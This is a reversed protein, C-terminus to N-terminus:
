KRSGEAGPIESPAAEFIYCVALGPLRSFLAGLLHRIRFGEGPDTLPRAVGRRAVVRWGHRRLCETWVGPRVPDYPVRLRARRARHRLWVLPHTANRADVTLARPRLCSIEGLVVAPNACTHITNICVVREFAGRRFPLKEAAARVLRAGPIRRRAERLMKESADVGITGEPLAALLRGNGCGVELLRGGGAARAAIAATGRRVEEEITWREGYDAAVADFFADRESM